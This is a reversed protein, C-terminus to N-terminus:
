YPQPTEGLWAGCDECRFRVKPGHPSDVSEFDDRKRGQAEFCEPCYGDALEDAKITLHCHRCRLRPANERIVTIHTHMCPNM